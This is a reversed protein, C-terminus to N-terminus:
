AWWPQRSNRRVARPKKGKAEVKSKAVKAAPKGLAVKVDKLFGGNAYAQSADWAM